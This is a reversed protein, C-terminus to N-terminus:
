GWSSIKMEGPYPTAEGGELGAKLGILFYAWKTSCHYMFEVPERWDSHTFLLATEGDAQTLDFTIHTGIWEEAQGLCLWVVRQNPELDEVNMIVRADPGGFYFQLKGGVNPDGDVTRTWWSSLGETTALAAYVREQPAKIGVRHRISEM